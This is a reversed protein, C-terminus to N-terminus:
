PAGSHLANFADILEGCAPREPTGEDPLPLCLARVARDLREVRELALRADEVTPPEACAVFGLACGLACGLAAQSWTRATARLHRKM